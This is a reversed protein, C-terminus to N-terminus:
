DDLSKTQQNFVPRVRLGLYRSAVAGTHPGYSDMYFIQADEWDDLQNTWYGYYAGISKGEMGEDNNCPLFISNGNSKSTILMGDLDAIGLYNNEQTITVYDTNILEQFQEPTPIHYGIGYLDAAVDDDFELSMLNDPEGSGAWYDVDATPCYKTVGSLGKLYSEGYKYNSGEFYNKTSLEGWAYKNGFWDTNYVLDSLDVGINYNAWLTGSPLGLDIFLMREVPKIVDLFSGINECIRIDYIHGPQMAPPINGAWKISAPLSISAMSDIKIDIIIRYENAITNDAPSALGIELHRDRNTSLYLTNPQLTVTATDEAIEVKSVKDKKNGLEQQTVYESHTHNIAAYERAHNHYISAYYADHNHYFDAFSSAHKGSDKLNGEDDFCAFNDRVALLDKDAKMEVSYRTAYDGAPQYVGDHNHNAAAKSNLIEMLGNIATIGIGEAKHWFSDFVEHFQAETPKCRTRFWSKITQLDTM